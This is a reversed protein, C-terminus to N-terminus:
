GFFPTSVAHLTEVTKNASDGHHEVCKQAHCQMDSTWSVVESRTM